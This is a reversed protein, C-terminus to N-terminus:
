NLSKFWYSVKNKTGNIYTSLKFRNSTNQTTENLIHVHGLAEITNAEPGEFSKNEEDKQENNDQEREDISPSCPRAPENAESVPYSIDAPLTKCIEIQDQEAINEAESKTVEEFSCPAINYLNSTQGGDKRFRPTREVAGYKCLERM